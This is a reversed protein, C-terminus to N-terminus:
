FDRTGESQDFSPQRVIPFAAVRQMRDQERGEALRRAEFSAAVPGGALDARDDCIGKQVSCPTRGDRNRSKRWIRTHRVIAPSIVRGSKPRAAPRAQPQPLRRRRDAGGSQADETQANEATEDRLRVLLEMDSFMLEAPVDPTERALLAMVRWVANIM